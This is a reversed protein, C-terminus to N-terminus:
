AAGAQMDSRTEYVLLGEPSCSVALVANPVGSPSRIYLLDQSCCKTCWPAKQHVSHGGGAAYDIIKTASANSKTVNGSPATLRMLEPLIVAFIARFATLRM